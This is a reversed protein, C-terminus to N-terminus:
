VEIGLKVNMQTEAPTKAIVCLQVFDNYFSPDSLLSYTLSERHEPYFRYNHLIYQLTCPPVRVVTQVLHPLPPPPSPTSPPSFPTLPSQMTPRWWKWCRVAPSSVSGAQKMAEYHRANHGRLACVVTYM